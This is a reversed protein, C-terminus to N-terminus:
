RSAKEPRRKGIFGQDRGEPRKGKGNYGKGRKSGWRAVYPKIDVVPTGNLADLGKVILENGRVSILEVKMLGLPAPRYPSRSAFVGRVGWHPTKCKLMYGKSRHFYFIVELHKHERIRYLGDAYRPFVVIKSPEKRIRGPEPPRENFSNKVFGVPSLTM